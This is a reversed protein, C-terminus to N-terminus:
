HSVSYENSTIFRISHIGSHDDKNILFTTLSIGAIGKRSFIV